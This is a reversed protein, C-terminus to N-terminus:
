GRYSDSSTATLYWNPNSDKLQRTFTWVDTIPISIEAPNDIIEGSLKKTVIIQRSHYRVTIRVDQDQIIIRDIDIRDIRELITKTSTGDQVQQDIANTFQQYVSDVLLDKLTKKDGQSYAEIIMIYAQEAGQIFEKLVFDPEIVRLQKIAERVGTKLLYEEDRGDGSAEAPKKRLPIVNDEEESFSKRLRDRRELDEDSEQGMISYLRYFLYGSLLAFFIIELFQGMAFFGRLSIVIITSSMAYLHYVTKLSANVIISIM